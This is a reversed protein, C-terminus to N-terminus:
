VMFVADDAFFLKNQADLQSFGSQVEADAFGAARLADELRLRDLVDRRSAAFTKAVLATLAALREKGVLPRPEEVPRCVKTPTLPASSNSPEVGEANGEPKEVDTSARANDVQLAQCLQMIFKRDLDTASESEYRRLDSLSTEETRFRAQAGDGHRRHLFISLVNPYLVQVNEGVSTVVCPTTAKRRDVERRSTTKVTVWDGVALEGALPAALSRRVRKAASGSPTDADNTRTRKPTPTEM